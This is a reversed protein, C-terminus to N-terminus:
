REHNLACSGANQSPPPKLDHGPIGAIEKPAPYGDTENFEGTLPPEDWNSPDLDEEFQWRQLTLREVPIRNLGKPFVLSISVLHAHSHALSCLAKSLSWPSLPLMVWPLGLGSAIPVFLRASLSVLFWVFSSFCFFTELFPGLLTHWFSCCRSGRVKFDKIQCLM